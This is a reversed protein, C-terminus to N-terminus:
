KGDIEEWYKARVLTAIGTLEAIEEVDTKVRDLRRQFDDMRIGAVACLDRWNPCAVTFAYILGDLRDSYKQIRKETDSPSRDESEQLLVGIRMQQVLIAQLILNASSNPDVLETQWRTSEYDLSSTSHSKPM